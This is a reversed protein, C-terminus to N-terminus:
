GIDWKQLSQIVSEGQSYVKIGRSNESPYIRATMVKEGGQIFVEVSSRDVFIRLALVGGDLEVTTRREGQPGIGSRDRNLSLLRDNVSYSLVTEEESSTRLKLGFGTATGAKLKVQLEYSDGETGLLLEGDLTVGTMEYLNKRYGEIEKVPLFLVKDGQLVLERPLTMAGAWGHGQQTPMDTEWMDMWGIMIRRGQDDRTTQPAYFDFGYDVPLYADYHFKGSVTDLEGLMYTTSHLNRYDDGQAPVRQPSMLLVDRGGLAFLDPCEWNDGLTGDSQAMVNVFTWHILDESRYLLIQGNGKGDNSGLVVYYSGDREFVKPDRFDKLSAGEPIQSNDIVPNDALKEFVVGDSSVAMNQKQIYDNDKDPGTIIHGTYMLYLRGDKEVASGSFCGDKDYTQDPALAVPQYTWSILDRSVAHGWHMPGWVSKYPYHQYFMHYQGKYQVFGNPDNMWGFESMLHYNLRYDSRLSQKNTQM